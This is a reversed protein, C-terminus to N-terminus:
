YVSGMSGDVRESKSTGSEKGPLVDCAQMILDASGMDVKCSESHEVKMQRRHDNTPSAMLLVLM